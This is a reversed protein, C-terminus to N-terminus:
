RAAELIRPAFIMILGRLILVAMTVFIMCSIFWTLYFTPIGLFETLDGYKRSREALVVCRNAPWWLMVGCAISVIGGWIRTMGLKEILGDLLDVSIHSGSGSMVPLASFVIIAVSMRTLEPASGLPANLASRLVVDAFTMTMLFFLTACALSMPILSLTRTLRIM